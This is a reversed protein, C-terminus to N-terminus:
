LDIHVIATATESQGNDDTAKFHLTFKKSTNGPASPYYIGFCRLTINIAKGNNSGNAVTTTCNYGPFHDGGGFGDGTDIGTFECIYNDKLANNVMVERLQLSVSNNQQYAQDSTIKELTLKLNGSYYIRGVYLQIDTFNRNGSESAQVYTNEPTVYM